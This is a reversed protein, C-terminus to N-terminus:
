LWTSLEAVVPNLQTTLDAIVAQLSKTADDRREVEVEADAALGVLGLVNAAEVEALDRVHAAAGADAKVLGLVDADVGAVADLLPAASASIALAGVTFLKAFGFMKFSHTHTTFLTPNTSLPQSAHLSGLCLLSHTQLIQNPHAYRTIYGTSEHAAQM